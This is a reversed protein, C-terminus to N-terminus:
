VYQKDNFFPAMINHYRTWETRDANFINSAFFFRPVRFFEQVKPFAKEGKTIIQKGLEIDSFFIM